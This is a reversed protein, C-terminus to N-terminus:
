QTTDDAIDQELFLATQLNVNLLFQTFSHGLSCCHTHTLTPRLRRFVSRGVPDWTAQGVEQPGRGATPVLALSGPHQNEQRTLFGAPLGAWWATRTIGRCLTVQLEM